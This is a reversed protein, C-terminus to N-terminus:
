LDKHSTPPSLNINNANHSNVLFQNAMKLRRVELENEFKVDIYNILEVFDHPDILLSGKVIEPTSFRM